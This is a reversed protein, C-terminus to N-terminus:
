MFCDTETSRHVSRLTMIRAKPSANIVNGERAIAAGETLVPLPPGRQPLTIQAAYDCPYPAFTRIAHYLRTHNPIGARVFVVNAGVFLVCWFRMSGLLIRPRAFASHLKRFPGVLNISWSRIRVSVSFCFSACIISLRSPLSSTM